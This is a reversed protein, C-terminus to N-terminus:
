LRTLVRPTEIRVHDPSVFRIVLGWSCYPQISIGAMAQGASDRRPEGKWSKQQTEIEVLVVSGQRTMRCCAEKLRGLHNHKIGPARPRQMTLTM